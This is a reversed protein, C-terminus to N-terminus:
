YLLFFLVPSNTEENGKAVTDDTGKMETFAMEYETFAM